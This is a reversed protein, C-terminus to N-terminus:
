PLGEAVPFPGPHLFLPDSRASLSEPTSGDARTWPDGSVWQAPRYNFLGSEVAWIVRSIRASVWGAGYSM